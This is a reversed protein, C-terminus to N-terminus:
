DDGTGVVVAVPDPGEGGGGVGQGGGGGGGVVGGAGVVGEGDEVVEVPGGRGGLFPGGGVFAGAPPDTCGVLDEAEPVGDAHGGVGPPESSAARTFEKDPIKCGPIVFDAPVCIDGRM